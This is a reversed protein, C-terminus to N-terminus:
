LREFEIGVPNITLRYHGTKDFRDGNQIMNNELGKELELSKRVKTNIRSVVVSVDHEDRPDGKVKYIKWDQVSEILEEFYVWGVEIGKKRGDILDKYDKKLCEIMLVLMDGEISTTKVPLKSNLTIIGENNEKFNVLVKYDKFSTVLGAEAEKNQSALSGPGSYAGASQKRLDRIQNEKEQSDLSENKVIDYYSKILNTVSNLDHYLRGLNRPLNRLIEQLRMQFELGITEIAGQSGDTFPKESAQSYVSSTTIGGILHSADSYQHELEAILKDCLPFKPYLEHSLAIFKRLEAETEEQRLTTLETKYFSNILTRSKEDIEALLGYVGRVLYFFKTFYFEVSSIIDVIRILSSLNASDNAPMLLFKESLEQSYYYSPHRFVYFKDDIVSKPIKIPETGQICFYENIFKFFESSQDNLNQVLTEKSVEENWREVFYFVTNPLYYRNKVSEDAGSFFLEWVRFIENELENFRIGFENISTEVEKAFAFMMIEYEEHIKRFSIIFSSSKSETILNAPNTIVINGIVRTQIGSILKQYTVIEEDFFQEFNNKTPEGTSQWYTGQIWKGNYKDLFQSILDKLIADIGDIHAMHISLCYGLQNAICDNRDESENM